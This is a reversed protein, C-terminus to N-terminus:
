AGERVNDSYDGLLPLLATTFKPLSTLQAVVALQAAKNEAATAAASSTAGKVLQKNYEQLYKLSVSLAHQKTTEGKEKFYVDMGDM